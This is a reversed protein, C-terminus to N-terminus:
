SSTFRLLPLTQAYRAIRGRLRGGGLLLGVPGGGGLLPPDLIHATGVGDGEDGAAAAQDQVDRAAGGGLAGWSMWYGSLPLVLWCHFSTFAAPVWAASVLPVFFTAVAPGYAQFLAWTTPPPKTM